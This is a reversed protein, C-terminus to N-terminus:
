YSFFVSASKWPANTGWVDHRGMLHGARICQAYSTSRDHRVSLGVGFASAGAGYYISNTNRVCISTSPDVYDRYRPDANWYTPGDFRSVDSGQQWHSQMDGVRVWYNTYHVYGANDTYCTYVDRGKYFTAQIKIRWGNFSGWWNDPQLDWSRERGAGVSGNASYHSGDFSLAFEVNISSSSAFDFNSAADWYSHVAGVTVWQTTVKDTVTSKACGGGNPTVAAGTYNVGDAVLPNYSSTNTDGTASEWTPLTADADIDEIGRWASASEQADTTDITNTQLPYFTATPATSSLEPNGLPLQAGGGPPQEVQVTAAHSALMPRTTTGITTTGIIVARVNIRGQQADAQQQAAAPLPNPLAYSYYGQSDTTTTGLLTESGDEGLLYVDVHANPVATGSSTKAYGAADLPTSPPTAPPADTPHTSPESADNAQPKSGVIGDLGTGIGNKAAVAVTYGTSSSLGTITASRATPVANQTVMPSTGDLPVARLMYATIAAGGDGSSAAWSVVGSTASPSWTVGSVQGPAHPTAYYGHARIVIDVPYDGGNWVYVTGDPNVDTYAAVEFNSTRGTPSYWLTATHSVTDDSYLGLWGDHGPNVAVVQAAIGSVGTAPISGTGLIQVTCGSHAALKPSDGTTPCASTGTATTTDFVKRQTPVFSSGPTSSPPASYYGRVRITVTATGTCGLLQLNLQGNSPLAILDFNEGDQGATFAGDYDSRGSGAPTLSFGGSCTPDQVVTQLAVATASGDTPVGANGTVQVAYTNSGIALPGSTGTGNRTFGSPSNSSSALLAPDYGVYTSGASTTSSGTYYGHLRVVLRSLVAGSPIPSFGTIALAVTGNTAPTVIDFGNREGTAPFTLSTDTAGAAAGTSLAGAFNGSVNYELVVASASAPVGTATGGVSTVSFTLTSGPALNPSAVGTGNRSDLVATGAIPTFQGAAPLLSVGSASASAGSM